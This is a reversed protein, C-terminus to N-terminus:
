SRRVRVKAFRGEASRYKVIRRHEIKHEILAFYFMALINLVM